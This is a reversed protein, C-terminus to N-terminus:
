ENESLPRSPLTRIGRDYHDITFGAEEAKVGLRDEYVWYIESYVADASTRKTPDAPDFTVFSGIVTVTHPDDIHERVFDHHKQPDDSAESWWTNVREDNMWQQILGVDRMSILRLNFLTTQDIHPMARSYLLDVDDDQFPSRRRPHKRVVTREPTPDPHKLETETMSCDNSDAKAFSPLARHMQEFIAARRVDQEDAGANRLGLQALLSSKVHISQTQNRAGSTFFAFLLAWVSGTEAGSDTTLVLSSLEREFASEQDTGANDCRLQLTDGQDASASLKWSRALDNATTTTTSSKEDSQKRELSTSQWGDSASEVFEFSDFSPLLSPLLQRKKEM